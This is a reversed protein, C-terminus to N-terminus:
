SIGVEEEFLELAEPKGVVYVIDGLKVKTNGTIETVTKGDRKIAVLNIGTNGRLNSDKLSKGIYTGHDKEIKIGAFNIEPIDLTPVSSDNSPTRFVEYNHHRVDNTFDDIEGKPVLYKYLVRTFIEISTEFEEPIVEDAGQNLMSEIENVYRTRVIIFVSQSATRINEIIGSTAPQNSIAIVAVRAKHIQVHELVVANAADGYVIPEGKAAEVKVTEPNMEIIVYPIKARKAARSLNRGNLGYGIIVLHDNLSDKELNLEPVQTKEELKKKFKQPMPINLVKCALNERQKLVFPTIIMTLISIALFFQYTTNDLLEYKLGEKALLLSFEGVQFISFGVIFSEKYSTGLSKVALSTVTFKVVFTLAVLALILLFHEALFSIDFLMGVSVFFFSLFIERFPLIKGTAHHSYESESIILGALFAGLGLSLGLLSTVYAVAFCTVIISLLFLEENKTKAVRYLLQPILYKASIITLVIVLGGKLALYFLSLLVNDSEGALMPTFLVLPVIIIDQFILIALTTRGSITNVQGSEQLLKLVIATSSLAFLFGFFVAINWDFGFLYSIMATVGITLTVQLSGGIFVAKKIAMLSKLSFELGIVFLLLIVGIESLVEVATSAYVLSLGYPGAIAGTLLYGIITPLKLRMFLLIVLTALGFIVVIDSLLPLEAVALIFSNM